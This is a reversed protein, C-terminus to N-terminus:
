EIVEELQTGLVDVRGNAILERGLLIGMTRNDTTQLRHDASLEGQSSNM